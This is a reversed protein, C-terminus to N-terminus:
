VSTWYSHKLFHGDVSPICYFIIYFSANVKGYVCRWHADSCLKSHVVTGGSIECFIVASFWHTLEGVSKVPLLITLIM